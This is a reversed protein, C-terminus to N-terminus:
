LAVFDRSIRRFISSIVALELDDLTMSGPTLRFRMHLEKSTMLLLKPRIGMAGIEYRKRSKSANLEFIAQKIWGM